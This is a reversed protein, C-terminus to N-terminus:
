NLAMLTIFSISLIFGLIATYLATGAEDKMGTIITLFWRNIAYLFANLLLAEIVLLGIQIVRNNPKIVGNYYAGFLLIISLVVIILFLNIFGYVFKRLM